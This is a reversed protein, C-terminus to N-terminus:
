LGKTTNCFTVKVIKGNEITYLAIAEYSANPIVGSIREHDIVTNGLVMRNIIECHLDPYKEFYHTYSERIAEKGKKILTNSEYNYIEVDESYPSLFADINRANYGNVQQQVLNEPSEKAIANPELLLGDKIVYAIDQIARIDELPNANLVLLDAKKGVSWREWNM